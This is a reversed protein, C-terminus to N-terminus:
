KRSIEGNTSVSVTFTSANKSLSHSATVSESSKVCGDGNFVFVKRDTDFKYNQALSYVQSVRIGLPFPNDVGSPTSKLTAVWLNDGYLEVKETTGGTRYEVELTNVTDSSTSKESSSLTSDNAVSSVRMFDKDPHNIDILRSNQKLLAFAERQIGFPAALKNGKVWVNGVYEFLAYRGQQGDVTKSGVQHKVKANWCVVVHTKGYISAQQRALRLVDCLQDRSKTLTDRRTAGFFSTSALTILLAAIGMVTLLEILTFGQRSTKMRPACRGKRGFFQM